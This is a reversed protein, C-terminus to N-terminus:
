AVGPRVAAKGRRRKADAAAPLIDALARDAAKNILDYSFVFQYVGLRNLEFREHRQRFEDM